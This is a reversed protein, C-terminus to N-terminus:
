LKLADEYWWEDCWGEDLAKQVLKELAKERESGLTAAIAQEPTFAHHFDMELYTKGEVDVFETATVTMDYGCLVFDWTTRAPEDYAREDDNTLYEVGREDLLKCLLETTRNDTM